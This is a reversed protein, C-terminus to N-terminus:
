AKITLYDVAFQAEQNIFPTGNKTKKKLLKEM